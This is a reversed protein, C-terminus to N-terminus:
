EELVIKDIHLSNYIDITENPHKGFWEYATNSLSYLNQCESISWKQFPKNKDKLRLVNDGIADIQKDITSLEKLLENRRNELQKRTM